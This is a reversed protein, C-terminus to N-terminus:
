RRDHHRADAVMRIKGAIWDAGVRGLKRKGGLANIVYIDALPALNVNGADDV